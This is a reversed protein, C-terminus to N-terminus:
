GFFRNREWHHDKKKLYIVDFYYRLHFGQWWCKKIIKKLNLIEKMILNLFYGSYRVIAASTIAEDKSWIEESSNKKQHKNKSKKHIKQQSKNEKLKEKNYIIMMIYTGYMM